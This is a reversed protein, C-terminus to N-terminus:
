DAAQCLETLVGGTSKPHIFAVLTGHAGPRPESDILRAGAAAIAKLKSRIDDVKYCLHHIGPGRSALFKGVASDEATPYLLEVQAGGVDVFCIRLGRDPLEEPESVEFGLVEGYLRRAEDLDSVAIGIHDLEM